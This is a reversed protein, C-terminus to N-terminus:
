VTQDLKCRTFSHIWYIRMCRSSVCCVLKCVKVVHTDCNFHVGLRIELRKHEERAYTLLEEKLQANFFKPATEQLGGNLCDNYKIVTLTCGVIRLDLDSGQNGNMKFWFNCYWFEVMFISTM